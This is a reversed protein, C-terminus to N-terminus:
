HIAGRKSTKRSKLIKSTKRSELIECSESFSNAKKRHKYSSTLSLSSTSKIAVAFWYLWIRRGSTIVSM